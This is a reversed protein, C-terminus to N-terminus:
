IINEKSKQLTHGIWAWKNRSNTCKAPEQGTRECLDENRISKSWLITMIRKLRKNIFAQVKKLITRSIRWTESGYLLITRVNTNFIRVKCKWIKQLINFAARAKGIRAKADESTGGNTSVISGLYTFLSVNEIASKELMIPSNNTNDM